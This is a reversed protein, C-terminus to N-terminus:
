YELTEEPWADKGVLPVFRCPGLMRMNHGESTRSLQALKQERLTGIPIVLRGGVAMQDLLVHLLRPSAAAVIIANFPAEEACGLVTGAARVEVNYCGLDTLRGAAGAALAPIRELSLVRGQPVLRSLIAAQYGSGTGIEMVKDSAKLELAAIMFAVIFPQSITQGEGIPLPMDRYALNRAEPPVFRERPVEAMVKVVKDDRIERGLNKFLERRDKEMDSELEAARNPKM